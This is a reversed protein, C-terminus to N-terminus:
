CLFKFKICDKMLKAEWNCIIVYTFALVENEIVLSLKFPKSQRYPVDVM